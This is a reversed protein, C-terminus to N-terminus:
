SGSATIQKAPTSDPQLPSEQLTQGPGDVGAEVQTLADGIKLLGELMARIQQRPKENIRPLIFNYLGFKTADRCHGHAEGNLHDDLWMDWDVGKADAHHQVGLFSLRLLKEEDLTLPNIAELQLGYEGCFRTIQSLKFKVVWKKGRSCTFTSDYEQPMM